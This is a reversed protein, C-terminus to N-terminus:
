KLVKHLESLIRAVKAHTESDSEGATELDLMAEHLKTKAERMVAWATKVSTSQSFTKENSM